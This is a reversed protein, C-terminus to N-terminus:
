SSPSFENDVTEERARKRQSSAAYIGLSQLLNVQGVTQKPPEFGTGQYLGVNVPSFIDMAFVNASDIDSAHTFLHKAKGHTIFQRNSYIAVYGESQFTTVIPQKLKGETDLEVEFYQMLPAYKEPNKSVEYFDVPCLAIVAGSPLTPQSAVGPQIIKYYQGDDKNKKWGIHKFYGRSAEVASVTLIRVTPLYAGLAAFMRQALGQQRYASFVEVADIEVRLRYSTWILYAAVDGKEDLAVMANCQKFSNAIIEANHWFHRRPKGDSTYHAHQEAWVDFKQILEDDELAGLLVPQTLLESQPLTKADFDAKLSKLVVLALADNNSKDAFQFTIKPMVYLEM